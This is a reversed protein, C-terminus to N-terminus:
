EKNVTIDKAEIGGFDKDSVTDLTYRMYMRYINKIVQPGIGHGRIQGYVTMGRSLKVGDKSEVVGDEIIIKKYFDPDKSINEKEQRDREENWEKSFPITKPDKPFSSM